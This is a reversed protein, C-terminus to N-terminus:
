EVPNGDKDFTIVDGYVVDPVIEPEDRNAENHAEILADLDEADAPFKVFRKDEAEYLIEGNRDEVLSCEVLEGDFMLEVKDAPM